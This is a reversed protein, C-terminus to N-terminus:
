AQAPKHMGKAVTNEPQKKKFKTFASTVATTETENIPSSQDSSCVLGQPLRKAQRDDSSDAAHQMGGEPSLRPQKIEQAM